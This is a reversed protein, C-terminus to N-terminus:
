AKIIMRLDRFFLLRKLLLSRRGGSRNQNMEQDMLWGRKRLEIILKKNGM